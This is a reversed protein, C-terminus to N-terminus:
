ARAEAWEVRVAEHLTRDEGAYISAGTGVGAGYWIWSVTHRGESGEEAVLAEVDINGEEEVELKKLTTDSLGRVDEEKLPQFTRAWEEDEGALM